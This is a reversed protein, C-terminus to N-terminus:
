GTMFVDASSMMLQGYLLHPTDDNHILVVHHLSIWVLRLVEPGECLVCSFM